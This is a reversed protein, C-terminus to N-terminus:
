VGVTRQLHYPVHSALDKEAGQGWTYQQDLHMAAATGSLFKVGDTVYMLQVDPISSCFIPSLMPVSFSLPVTGSWSLAATRSFPYTNPPHYYHISLSPHAALFFSTNWSPVPLSSTQCGTKVTKLTNEAEMERLPPLCWCKLLHTKKQANSLLDWNCM